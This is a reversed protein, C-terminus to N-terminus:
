QLNHQTLHASLQPELGAHLPPPHGSGEFCEITILIRRALSTLQFVRSQAQLLSMAAFAVVVVVVVFCVLFCAIRLFYSITLLPRSHRLFFVISLDSIQNGLGVSMYTTDLSPALQWTKSTTTDRPM